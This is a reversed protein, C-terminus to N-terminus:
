SKLLAEIITATISGGGRVFTGNGAEALKPMYAAADAAGRVMVTSVKQGDTAAFRRAMALTSQIEERYAAHDSMIVIVRLESRPRWSSNVATALARGIAEENEANGPNSGARLGNVFAQLDRLAASNQEILLLPVSQIVPRDTRDKFSIVRMGFSPALATLIEALQSLEVKLGAIEQGMSGTTDLAVVLDIHPFRIKKADKIIQEIQAKLKANEEEKSKIGGRLSAQEKKQKESEAKSEQLKKLVASIKIPSDGTNPFYPLLVVTILLFAGLASAFLDLASISFINIERSRRKM